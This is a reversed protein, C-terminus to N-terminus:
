FQGKREINTYQALIREERRFVCRIARSSVPKPAQSSSLLLLPKRDQALDKKVDDTTSSMYLM